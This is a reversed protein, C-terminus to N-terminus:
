YPESIIEIVTYIEPDKYSVGLKLKDGVKYLDENNGISQTYAKGEFTYDIQAYHNTTGKVKNTTFCSITGYATSRYHELQYACYYRELHLMGLLFPIVCGITLLANGLRGYWKTEKLRLYHLPFAIPFSLTMFLSLIVINDHQYRHAYLM